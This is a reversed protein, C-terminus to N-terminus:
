CLCYQCIKVMKLWKQWRQLYLLLINTFASLSSSHLQVLEFHHGSPLLLAFFKAFQYKGRLFIFFCPMAHPIMKLEKKRARDSELPDNFCPRIFWMQHMLPTCISCPFHWFLLHTVLPGVSPGIFRHVLLSVRFNSDCTLLRLFITVQCAALGKGNHACLNTPRRTQHGIPVCM